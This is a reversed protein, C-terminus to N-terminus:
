GECKIRREGSGRGRRRAHAEGVALWPPPTRAATAAGEWVALLPPSVRTATAAGEWVALLPPSMTGWQSHRRRRRGGKAHAAAVGEGWWSRHCGGSAEVPPDPPTTHSGAPPDPSMLSKGCASGAAVAVEWPRIWSHRHSGALNLYFKHV